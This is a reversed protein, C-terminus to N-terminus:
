DALFHCKFVNLIIFSYNNYNFKENNYSKWVHDYFYNEDNKLIGYFICNWENLM